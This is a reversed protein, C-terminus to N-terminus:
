SANRRNEEFHVPLFNNLYDVVQMSLHKDRQCDLFYVLVTAIASLAMEPCSCVNMLFETLECAKYDIEARTEENDIMVM